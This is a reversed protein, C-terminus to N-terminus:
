ERAEGNEHAVAAVNLRKPGTLRPPLPPLRRAERVMEAALASAGPIKSQTAAALATVATMAEVALVPQPM